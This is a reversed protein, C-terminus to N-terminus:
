EQPERFGVPSNRTSHDVILGRWPDIEIDVVGSNEAGGVGGSFSSGGDQGVSLLGVVRCGDWVRVTKTSM